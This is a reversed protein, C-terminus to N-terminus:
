KMHQEFALYVRERLDILEDEAWEEYYPDKENCYPLEGLLCRYAEEKSFVEGLYFKHPCDDIAEDFGFSRSANQRIYLYM